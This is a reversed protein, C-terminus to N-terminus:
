VGKDRDHIAEIAKWAVVVNPPLIVELADMVVKMAQYQKETWQGYVKLASRTGEQLATVM